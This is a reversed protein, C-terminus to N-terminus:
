RTYQRGRVVTGKKKKARRKKYGMSVVSVLMELMTVVEGFYRGCTCWWVVGGCWVVVVVVVASRVVKRGCCWM